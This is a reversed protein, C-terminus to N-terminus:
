IVTFDDRFEKIPELYPTLEYDKGGQKPFFFPPHVSLPTCICVMRRPPPSAKEGAGLRPLLADLLPLAVSVGAAKLFHRRSSRSINAMFTGDLGCGHNEASM